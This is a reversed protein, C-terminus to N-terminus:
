ALEPKKVGNAGGEIHAARAADLPVVGNGSLHNSRGFLGGWRRDGDDFPHFQELQAM